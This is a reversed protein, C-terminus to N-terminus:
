AIKNQQIRSLQVHVIWNSDIIFTSQLMYPANTYVIRVNEMFIPWHIPYLYIWALVSNLYSDCNHTQWYWPQQYDPAMFLWPHWKLIISIRRVM